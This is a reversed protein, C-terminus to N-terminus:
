RAGRANGGARRVLRMYVTLFVVQLVGMVM